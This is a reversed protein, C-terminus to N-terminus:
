ALAASKQGRLLAFGGLGISAVGPIALFIAGAVQIMDVIETMVLAAALGLLAVGFLILALLGFNEFLASMDFRDTFREWWADRLQGSRRKALRRDRLTAVEADVSRASPKAHATIIEDISEEVPAVVQTLLLTETAPESKLIEALREAMAPKPEAVRADEVCPAGAFAIPAGLVSAAYDLKARVFASPAAKVEVDQLYLAKEAARRRVLADVVELSGDIDAKRWADMACAAAIHDANNVRRLVQSQTFAEAGISFAFSVLADFQPQTIRATVHANVIREIEMLDAALLSEATDETVAEGAEARVHSYGVIWNGDPLQAPEARFGEAQKILALGNPSTAYTM